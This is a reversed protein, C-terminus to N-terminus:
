PLVALASTAIEENAAQIGYLVEATPYLYEVRDPGTYRAVIRGLITAQAVAEGDNIAANAFAEGLAIGSVGRVRFAFFTVAVTGTIERARAIELDAITLGQGELFSELGRGLATNALFAEPDVTAKVLPVVRFQDPLCFRLNSACTGLQAPSVFPRPPPTPSSTAIASSVASGFVIPALETASAPSAPPSTVGPAACGAVLMALAFILTLRVFGRTWAARM